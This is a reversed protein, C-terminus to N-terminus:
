KEPQASGVEFATNALISGNGSSLGPYLFIKRRPQGDYVLIDKAVPVESTNKKTRDNPAGTPAHKPEEM